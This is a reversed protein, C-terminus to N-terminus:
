RKRLRVYVFSQEGGGPTLHREACSEVCDFGAAFLAALQEASRRRVPLGSCREPGDAAFGGIVAQGQAALTRQLQQRYREVQADETLFHLVARDHWLDFGGIPLEVECVDGTQWEVKAASEGLRERAVALAAESLDLVRIRGVGAALLDDVLTSAGGGVDIVRSHPGLGAATLLQLSRQLHPRYWSVATAAKETYVRQWHQRSDSM